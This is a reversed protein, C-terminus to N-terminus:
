AGREDEGAPEGATLRASSNEAVRWAAAWSALTHFGVVVCGVFVVTVPDVAGGLLGVDFPLAVGYWDAALAATGVVGTVGTRVLREHVQLVTWVVALASGVADAFEALAAAYGEPVVRRAVAHVGVRVAVFLATVLASTLGFGALSPVLSWRAAASGTPVVALCVAAVLAYATGAVRYDRRGAGHWHLAAAVAAGGAVAGTPPVGDVAVLALTVLGGVAGAVPGRSFVRVGTQVPAPCLGSQTAAERESRM